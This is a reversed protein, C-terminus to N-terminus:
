AFLVSSLDRVREAMRRALREWGDPLLRSALAALSLSAVTRGLPDRIPIAVCRVQLSHEEDDVAYGRRHSLALHEVLKAPDSITHETFAELPVARALYDNLQGDSLEMLLAKGVGTCYCPNSKGVWAAIRIASSGDVKEIYLVSKADPGLVALNCTEGFEAVLADMAPRLTRRLDVHGIAQQGLTIAQPGLKFPGRPNSRVAYGREALARLIGLATSKPMRLTDAVDTLTLEGQEGLLDLVSLTRLTTSNLGSLPQFTEM